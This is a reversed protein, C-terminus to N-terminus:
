ARDKATFSVEVQAGKRLRVDKGHGDTLANEIRLQRNEKEPVDLAIQATEPKSGLRRAPIVKLVTGPVSASPLETTRSADLNLEAARASKAVRPKAMEIRVSARTAKDSRKKRKKYQM